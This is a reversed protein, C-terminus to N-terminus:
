ATAKKGEFRVLPFSIRQKIQKGLTSLKRMQKAVNADYYREGCRDCVYAPVNEMVVLGKRVRYYERVLRRELSGELCFDCIEGEM